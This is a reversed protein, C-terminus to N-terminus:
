YDEAMWKSDYYNFRNRLFQARHLERTGQLCYFYSDTKRM